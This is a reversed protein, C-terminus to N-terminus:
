PMDVSRCLRFGQDPGRGSAEFHHRNSTECRYEGGIWGGGRQVRVYGRPMNSDQYWDECWERVNGSMDYLGLENPEKLGVEHPRCNNKQLKTWIWSGTLTKEGSNRWYWAVEDIDNSGSYTFSQSKQGGGAAYEWETETPLRFGNASTDITVLWKISDIDNLNHSDAKDKELIYFPKLGEMVSKKNCFVICEYWSVSEVPLGDGKHKSPNTNMVERWERQTVEYKAIYFDPIRAGKGYLNSKTNKFSGGKVLVFNGPSEEKCGVFAIVLIFPVIWLKRM